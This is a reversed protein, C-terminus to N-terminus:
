DMICVGFTMFQRFGSAPFINTVDEWEWLELLVYRYFIGNPPTTINLQRCKTYSTLSRTDLMKIFTKLFSSTPDHIAEVLSQKCQITIKPKKVLYTFFHKRLTSTIINNFSNEIWKNDSVHLCLSFIILFSNKLM